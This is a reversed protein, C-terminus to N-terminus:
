FKVGFGLRIATSHLGLIRRGESNAFAKSVVFRPEYSAYLNFRDNRIAYVRLLADLAFMTRNKASLFDRRSFQPTNTSENIALYLYFSDENYQDFVVGAGTGLELYKNGSKVFPTSLIHAMVQYSNYLLVYGDKNHHGMFSAALEGEIAFVGKKDLSHAWSVSYTSGDDTGLHNKETWNMNAFGGEVRLVNRRQALGALPLLLLAFLMLLKKM